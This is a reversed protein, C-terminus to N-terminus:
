IGNKNNNFTVIENCFYLFDNLSFKNKMINVIYCVLQINGKTYGKDSDIRDISINTAVSGYNYTMNNGSINCIGNQKEYIDLLYQIDINFEKRRKSCHNLLSSIYNKPNLHKRRMKDAYTDKHKIALKDLVCEKCKARYKPLGDEFCGNKYFYNLSKEIKCSTCVQVNTATIKEYIPRKSIKRVKKRCLKCIQRYRIYGDGRVSHKYYDLPIKKQLCKVCKAETLDQPSRLIYPAYNNNQPNM